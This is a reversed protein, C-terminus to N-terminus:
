SRIAKEKSTITLIRKAGGHRHATLQEDSEQGRLGSEQETFRKAKM